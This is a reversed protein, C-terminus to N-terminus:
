GDEDETMKDYISLDAEDTSCCELYSEMKKFEENTEVFPLEYNGEKLQLIAIREITQIDTIHYKLARNITKIFLPLAVKQYLGFLSRIFRHKQTGKQNLVFGLCAEVEESLSKLKKEERQTPKKRHKPQYQPKPQGEPSFTENKVGDPPM